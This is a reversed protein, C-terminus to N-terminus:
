QTSCTFSSQGHTHIHISLSLYIASVDAIDYSSVSASIRPVCALIVFSGLVGAAQSPFSLGQMQNTNQASVQIISGSTPTTFTSSPVPHIPTSIAATTVMSTENRVRPVKRNLLDSENAKQHEKYSRVGEISRHGTREIVLQENVGSRVLPHLELPTTQRIDWNECDLYEKPWHITGSHKNLYWCTNHQTSTPTISAAALLSDTLNPCRAM